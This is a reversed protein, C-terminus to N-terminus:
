NLEKKFKLFEENSVKFEKNITDIDNNKYNEFVAKLYNTFTDDFGVTIEKSSENEKIILSTNFDDPPSFVREYSISFNNSKFIVENKYEKNFGFEFNAKKEIGYKAFGSFGMNVKDSKCSTDKIFISKASSGWFNRGLESAYIGMDNISGGGLEVSMRFNDASLEPILFTYTLTGNKYKESLDKFKKWANHYQFVCSQTIFLNNKKAIDVLKNLHSLKLVAPKDVIVNKNKNLSKLAYEFHNSNPLSIYVVDSESEHIANEYSKYVKKIKNIPKITKSRSAIDISLLEDIKNLAPIVRRIAIDSYGLLLIKSM